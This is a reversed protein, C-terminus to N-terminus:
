TSGPSSSRRIATSFNTPPGAAQGGGTAAPGQDANIAAILRDIEQGDALELILEDIPRDRHKKQKGM